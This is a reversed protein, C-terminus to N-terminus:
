YLESKGLEKVSPQIHVTKVVGGHFNEVNKQKGGFVFPQVAIFHRPKSTQSTTEFKERIKPIKKKLHGQSELGRTKPTVVKKLADSKKMMGNLLHNTVGM